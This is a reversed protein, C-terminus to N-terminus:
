SVDLIDDLAQDKVSSFSSKLATARSILRPGNKKVYVYEQLKDEDFYDSLFSEKVSSVITWGAVFSPTILMMRM